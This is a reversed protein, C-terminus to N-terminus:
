NGTFQNNLDETVRDPSFGAQGRFNGSRQGNSGLSVEVPPVIGSLRQKAINSGSGANLM